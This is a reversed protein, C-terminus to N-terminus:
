SKKAGVYKANGFGLILYGIGILFLLSFWGSQGFAKALAILALVIFVLNVFPIIFLLLWWGPKGAIQLMVYANYFPVIAAWGPKGAKVFMKWMGVIMAVTYALQLLSVVPSPAATSPVGSSYDMYDASAQALLTNM